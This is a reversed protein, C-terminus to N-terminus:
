GWCEGASLKAFEFLPVAWVTIAVIQGFTWAQVPTTKAGNGPYTLSRLYHAFLVIYWIWIIVYLCEVLIHMLNRRYKILWSLVYYSPRLEKTKLAYDIDSLYRELFRRYSRIRHLGFRDLVLFVLVVLSLVLSSGGVAGRALDMSTIAPADPIEPCFRTPDRTGCKPYKNTTLGTIRARDTPTINFDGISFLTAASVSVTFTSLVLLYVSDMGVTHLNLLTITIPLLGSISISGILSYNNFLGQLTTTGENLSGQRVVIHAAIEISLIFFCQAKHFEVTASQIAPSYNCLRTQMRNIRKKAANLVVPPAVPAFGWWL